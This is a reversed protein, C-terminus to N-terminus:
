PRTRKALWDAASSVLSHLSGAYPVHLLHTFQPFAAGHGVAPLVGPWYYPPQSMALTIAAAALSWTAVTAAIAGLRTRALPSVLRRFQRRPRRSGPGLGYCAVVAAAAFAAAHPSEVNRTAAITAAWAVAGAALAVPALLLTTLLARVVSLPALLIVVLPDSARPGRRTRRVSLRHQALDAARLLTIAALSVILGAVPLVVTIAVAAVTFALGPLWRPQGSQGQGAAREGAARPDGAAARPPDPPIGARGIPGAPLIPQPPWLSQAPQQPRAPQSQAPQPQAPQPQAPQPQALLTPAPPMPVPAMPAGTVTAAAQAGLWAATPRRLPDEALAASVLPVLSGPVGTLDARGSIVRFFITEFSGTGYPPRGTAGFAVAAGWSHIDSAPSSPEGKIVEPALYGPTGMVMGTQTLRTAGTPQAIGFDIVVPYDEALIVNGPKLDRHVIGAAHIAALAQALGQALLEVGLASLPGRQRVSEELTPGAVYRTVIYPFEGYVDADIVEAVYPSRVRRMTEVERVMRRRATADGDALSRLVKVAVLRGEPDRALHVVGMGGEGLKEQLRYPGLSAPLRETVPM